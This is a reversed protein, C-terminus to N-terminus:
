ASVGGVRRILRAVISSLVLWFIAAIGYNVLVLLKPDKPTFLDKFGLSLSDAWSKVFSVIANGPNAEGIVFIVDLVLFAAFIIGLWRAISALLGASQDKIKRWNVESGHKVPADPESDETAEARSSTTVDDERSTHEGM